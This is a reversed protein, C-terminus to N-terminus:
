TQQKIVVIKKEFVLLFINYSKKKNEPFVNEYASAVRMHRRSIVHLIGFVWVFACVFGKDVKSKKEQVTKILHRRQKRRREASRGNGGQIEM